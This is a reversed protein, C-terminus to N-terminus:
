QTKIVQQRKDSPQIDQLMKVKVNNLLLLPLTKFGSVDIKEAYLGNVDDFVFPTRFDYGTYTININKLNIGETHRAYFVSVPLEGFMSFEPYASIQEPIKALSDINFFAVKKKAVAAYTINIDELTVDRVPSGPIGTVSMPFVNHAFQERPGDMHYGQDPKGAPIEAKVDAIHIGSVTGASRIKQRKGLRIFIANGTNKAIVHRVDIDEIIGGDVSEIAIASRFTDYVSINSVKIKKFGGFSATGMKFASASSRIKCDAIVIDECFSNPDSSKLCIGDDAVNFFSNTLKVKKCDVLDIGDNNLFTNSIVKINNIFMNTCGRYEQIWCLGNKIIIDSIKVNDCKDFFILKPRNDEEPRKQHWENYTKWEKDKLTGKRLMRYIDKLLAEGRGDILGAGTIAVNNCNKAVILASAKEPGYAARKITALLQAGSALRLEVNSKLEIVGTVFKGLPVLVIGGGSAACQNITKQIILTNDTKGNGIAGSAVINFIKDDAKALQNFIALYAFWVIVFASKFKM